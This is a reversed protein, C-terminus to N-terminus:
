QVAPHHNSEDLQLPDPVMTLCGLFFLGTHDEEGLIPNVVGATSTAMNAAVPDGAGCCVGCKRGLMM